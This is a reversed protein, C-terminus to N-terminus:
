GPVRPSQASVDRGHDMMAPNAGGVGTPKNWQMRGAVNPRWAGCQYCWLVKGGAIIWLSGRHDHKRATM